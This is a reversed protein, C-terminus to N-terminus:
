HNIGSFEGAAAGHDAIWFRMPWTATGAAGYNIGNHFPVAAFMVSFPTIVEATPNDEDVALLAAPVDFDWVMEEPIAYSSMFYAPRGLLPSAPTPQSGDTTYYGLLELYTPAAGDAWGGVRACVQYLRGSLLDASITALPWVTGAGSMPYVNSLRRHNAPRGRPLGAIHAPSPITRRDIEAVRSTLQRIQLDPDGGPVSVRGM